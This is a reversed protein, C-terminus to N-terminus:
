YQRTYQCLSKEQNMWNNPRSRVPAGSSNGKGESKPLFICDLITMVKAM